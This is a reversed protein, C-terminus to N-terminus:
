AKEVHHGRVLDLLPKNLDRLKPHVSMKSRLTMVAGKQALNILDNRLPLGRALGAVLVGLFTDGVGNVNVVDEVKEVCPYLRMYVGGISLKDSMNFTRCLIYKSHIPDRLRPDNPKLLETLLVGDVGLKTVITPFFPLLQVTQLPIGRDTMASNTISVFRDRAGASSIGFADIVKWWEENEFLGYERAAAHMASLEHQNPTTLNVMNQPYVGLNVRDKLSPQLIRSSKAVSVPEFAVKVGLSSYKSMIARATDPNWNADVVIWKLNDSVQITSLHSDLIREEFVGMDAIAIVLDGKADNVAIYQATRRSTSSSIKLIGDTGLGDEQILSRNSLITQGAVDDVVLSCLGVSENGGVLHAAFAVNYGVGGISSSMKAINSTHMQPTGNATCNTDVAVSGFVLISALPFSIDPLDREGHSKQVSDLKDSISISSKTTGSSKARDGDKSDSQPVTSDLSLSKFAKGVANGPRKTHPRDYQINAFPEASKRAKAVNDERPQELHLEARDMKNLEVSVKAAMAVNSEILGRNAPLSNGKTIDKIRALIYPTNAPGHINNEAAERVAESIAFDIEEKPIAFKEPVPNAFLLGSSFTSANPVTHFMNNAAYIISAAEYENRVVVPSKVGSDRTYFAPFDVDGSRGDAFTFVGVGQTELYELTRPIDLFSKCGSSIVAVPTRGLETLDASIDMTDQGGRHVGGLGGTGFVQIGAAHALVMTGAVTTGGILKRGAIGMGFIYPIDKRSIKMTQPQGASSAIIELEQQDLGIKAIGGIIAITAPVAGHLRVIAELDQALALNHPNPFGHTYIASEMAVVPKNKNHLAWQVEESLKVYTKTHESPTGFSRLGRSDGNIALYRPRYRFSLESSFLAGKYSFSKPQLKTGLFQSRLMAM